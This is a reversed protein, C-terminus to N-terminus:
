FVNFFWRCIMFELLGMVMVCLTKDDTRKGHNVGDDFYTMFGFSIDLFGVFVMVMVCWTKDDTRTGHNVGEESYM